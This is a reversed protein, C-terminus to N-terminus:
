HCDGGITIQYVGLATQRASSPPSVNSLLGSWYSFRQREQMSARKSLMPMYREIYAVVEKGARDQDVFYSAITVLLVMLPFLSFFANFAFAGAWQAGDIRLFKKTALFLIPWVRRIKQDLRIPKSSNASRWYADIKCLHKPALTKIEM